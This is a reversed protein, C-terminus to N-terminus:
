REMIYKFKMEDPMKHVHWKDVLFDSVLSRHLREKDLLTVQIVLSDFKIKILTIKCPILEMEEERKPSSPAGEKPLECLVLEGIEFNKM